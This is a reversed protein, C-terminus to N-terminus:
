DAVSPGDLFARIRALVDATLPASHTGGELVEVEIPAGSARVVDVLRHAHVPPIVEDFEAILVRVPADGGALWEDSRFRDLLLLAVPLYPYHRQAVALLSDFPTVLVIHGPQRAGAVLAAVGTGLSRGILDVSDHTRAIEDYLALAAAGIADQSPAGPAGGYGPYHLVYVDHDPFSRAYVRAAANADGGNGDFGLIARRVGREFVAAHVSPGGEIPLVRREIPAEDASPRPHYILSRQCLFVVACLLAYVAAVSIM